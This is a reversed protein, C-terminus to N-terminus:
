VERNTPLTLHTYSVAAIDDFTTGTTRGVFQGSRTIDYAVADASAIWSIRLSGATVNSLTVGTPAAPGVIDNTATTVSLTDSFASVLGAADRARVSLLHPAGGALTLVTNSSPVTAIKVGQDYIDYAVIGSGSDSLGDWQLPVSTGAIYSYLRVWQPAPPTWNDALTTVVLNPSATSVNGSADKAKVSYTYTTGPVLTSDSFSPSPSTAVVAGNRTVEYSAILGNDSAASWTFYVYTYQLSGLVLNGVWTPAQTDVLTSASVANSAASQNYNFDVAKVTYSFSTNAALGKDVYSTGSATGVQAGNRLVYYQTVRVNDTAATWSLAVTSATGTAVTLNTPVTPVVTDASTTVVKSDSWPSTNGAADFARVTYYYGTNPDGSTDTYSTVTGVRAIPVWQRGIEYGVVGVNDTAATWSLPVSKLALTGITIGTPTSPATSDTDTSVTLPLSSPSRNGAADVARVTLTYTTGASLGTLTFYTSPASALVTTGSLMEYSAVRSDADTSASWSLYLSTDYRTSLTLNSPATPPKSDSPATVSTSTSLASFNGAGDKARVAYTLTAGPM